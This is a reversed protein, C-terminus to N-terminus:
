GKAAAAKKAELTAKRKELSAVMRAKKDAELEEPTKAPAKTAKDADADAEEEQKKMAAALAAQDEVRVQPMDKVKPQRKPKTESVKATDAVEVCVKNTLCAMFYWHEKLKPNVEHIGVTYLVGDIERPAHFQVKM